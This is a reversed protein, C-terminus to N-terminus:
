VAAGIFPALVFASVMGFAILSLVLAGILPWKNEAPVTVLQNFGVFWLYVTYLSGAIGILAGIWPIFAVLGSVWSATGAFAPLRFANQPTVTANFKPALKQLLFSAVFLTLAGFAFTVLGLTLSSFFGVGAFTSTVVQVAAAAGALPAVYQTFIEMDQRQEAAVVKWGAAPDTLLLTARETIQQINIGGPNSRNSSPPTPPINHAAEM